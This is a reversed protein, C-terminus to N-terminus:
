RRAAKKKPRPTAAQVKPSQEELEGPGHTIPWVICLKGTVDLWLRGGHAEAISVALVIDEHLVGVMGSGGLVVDYEAVDIHPHGNCTLTPHMGAMAAAAFCLQATALQDEGSQRRAITQARDSM